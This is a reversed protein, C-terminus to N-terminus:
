RPISIAENVGFRWTAVMDDDKRYWLEVRKEPKMIEPGTLRVLRWKEKNTLQWWSVYQVRNTNQETVQAACELITSKAKSCGAKTKSMLHNRWKVTHLYEAPSLLTQLFWSLPQKEGPNSQTEVHYVQVPPKPEEQREKTTQKEKQKNYLFVWSGSSILLYFYFLIYM